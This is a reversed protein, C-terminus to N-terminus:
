QPRQRPELRTRTRPPEVIWKTRRIYVVLSSQNLPRDEEEVWNFSANEYKGVVHDAPESIRAQFIYKGDSPKPICFRIDNARNQNGPVADANDFLTYFTFKHTGSIRGSEAVIFWWQGNENPGLSGLQSANYIGISVGEATYLKFDDGFTIAVEITTGRKLAVQRTGISGDFDPHDEYGDENDYEKVPSEHLTALCTTIGEIHKM